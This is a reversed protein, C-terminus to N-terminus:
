TPGIVLSERAAQIVERTIQSLSLTLGLPPLQPQVIFPLELSSLARFQHVYGM